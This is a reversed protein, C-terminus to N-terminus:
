KWSLHRALFVALLVLLPILVALVTVRVGRWRSKWPAPAELRSARGTVHVEDPRDLDAKMDLATQYRDQPNRSMAKLIIEEVQPSVQPNKQRPAAPDGTLRANMILFPNAGEFPVSGTVMEYLIAGLSYIDTRRDGRKGKVQEPAMYDPTGMAPTFGGFTLRRQNEVKAIGFDMTRISGDNCIMINEPKLDRHVVDHDHMYHLAECIRSAIKLADNQPMPRVSRMLHGLTQGELFEMVLYPRSRDGEDPDVRMIYPHNLATGIEQERKFRTFFGPDSEFQMFPVKLAVVRNEKVDNAKYISAMGSRSILDSLEYRGDLVQGVEPETGMQNANVKQYMPVGRYYSLREVGEIHVVQVTLNDDGGRKEALEILRQCAEDPPNKSVIDFIERETVFCWLGDSCQVIKDGRSVVVTHYDLRVMPDQGVSRTLVSRLQSNAAEELTVIGLKLQVGAYSHDNTVRRVRAQQIAYVRCDGVHGITVENNRFVSITLTTMMRAETREAGMGADYVALNAANFMQFLLQSPSIGTRAGTFVALAQDCAMRSAVEGNGHGGVGDALIAVAGRTRWEEPVSPQ